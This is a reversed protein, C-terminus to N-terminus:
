ATARLTAIEAKLEEVWKPEALPDLLHEGSWVDGLDPKLAARVGAIYSTVIAERTAILSDYVDLFSELYQMNAAAIQAPTTASMAALANAAVEKKRERWLDLLHLLMVLATVMLLLSVYVGLKVLHYGTDGSGDSTAVGGSIGGGSIGGGSNSGKVVTESIILGACVIVILILLVLLATASKIIRPARNEASAMVGQAVALGVLAFLVPLALAFIHAQDSTLDFVRQTWGTGIMWEIFGVVIVALILLRHRSLVSRVSDRFSSGKTKATERSLAVGSRSESIAMDVRRGIEPFEAKVAAAMFKESPLVHQTSHVDCGPQGGDIQGIKQAIGVAQAATTEDIVPNNQNDVSVLAATAAVLEGLPRETM